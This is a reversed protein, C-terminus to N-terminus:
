ANQEYGNRLDRGKIANLIGDTLAASVQEALRQRDADIRAAGIRMVGGAMMASLPESCLDYPELQPAAFADVNFAQIHRKGDPCDVCITFRYQTNM